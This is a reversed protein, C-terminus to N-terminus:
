IDYRKARIEIRKYKRFIIKLRVALIPLGAFFIMPVLIGRLLPQFILVHLRDEPRNGRFYIPFPSSTISPFILHPFAQAMGGLNTRHRPGM